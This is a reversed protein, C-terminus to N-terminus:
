GARNGKRRGALCAPEGAGGEGKGQGLRGNKKGGCRGLWAKRWVPRGGKRKRRGLKARWRKERERESGPPGRMDSAEELKPRRRRKLEGCLRRETERRGPKEAGRRSGMVRRRGRVPRRGRTEGEKPRFSGSWWGAAM